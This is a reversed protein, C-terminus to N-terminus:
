PELTVVSRHTQGAEKAYWWVKIAYETGAGDCQPSAPTGDDPTSDLCVSGQGNPLNNQLLQDWQWLDHQAIVQPSCASAGAGVCGSSQSGSGSTYHGNQVGNTNARMRDAMDYALWTSQSRLYANHNNSLSAMQLGALGLMGVVFIVMTVLVEVLTFGREDRHPALEVKEQSERPIM